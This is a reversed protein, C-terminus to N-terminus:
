DDFVRDISHLGQTARIADDGRQCTGRKASLELKRCIVPCVHVLVAHRLYQCMGLGQHVFAKRRRGRLVITALRRESPVRYENRLM